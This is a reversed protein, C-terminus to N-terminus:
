ITSSATSDGKDNRRFLNSCWSAVAALASSVRSGAAGISAGVDKAIKLTVQEVEASRQILSQTLSGCQAGLRTMFESTVAQARSSKERLVAVCSKIIEMTVTQSHISKAALTMVCTKVITGCHLCLGRLRFTANGAIRGGVAVVANICTGSASLANTMLSSVKSLSEGVNNMCTAVFHCAPETIRALTSFASSTATAVSQLIPGIFSASIAAGIRSITDFTRESISRGARVLQTMTARLIVGPLAVIAHIASTVASIINEGTRELGSFGKEALRFPFMLISALLSLLRAPLSALAAVGDGAGSQMSRAISAM